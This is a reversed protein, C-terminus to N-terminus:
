ISYVTGTNDEEWSVFIRNQSDLDQLFAKVELLTFPRQLVGRQSSTNISCILEDVDMSDLGKQFMVESLLSNFLNM